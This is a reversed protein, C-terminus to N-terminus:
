NRELVRLIASRARPNSAAESSSARERACIRYSPPEDPASTQGSQLLAYQARGLGAPRELRQPRSLTQFRQKVRRDELSHFSICALRGGPRLRSPAQTLLADLEALEANVYIRLAQFTRTAPHHGPDRARGLRRLTAEVLEALQGTRKLPPLADSAAAERRAVIAGAIARAHREEGYDRIVEEIDNATAQDLWQMVSIGRSPDMRMDLPGDRLFSFGREAQDLQPSSVGLDALVGDVQEIGLADLAQNLESFPRHQISFRPDMLTSAAEIAEPDRDFALLRGQPGLRQLIARSHGGRGFTADVYVGDPRTVLLACAEQLLVTQHEPHEPAAM